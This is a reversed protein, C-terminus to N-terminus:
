DDDVSQLISVLWRVIRDDDLGAGALTAWTEFSMALMLAASLAQGDETRFHFNACFLGM